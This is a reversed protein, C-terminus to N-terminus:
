GSAPEPDREPVEGCVVDASDAEPLGVAVAYEGDLLATLGLTVTTESSAGRLPELESVVKGPDDCTGSRLWVPNAGGGAPEGEDLGDVVITTRDRSEYVLTARVGAVEASGRSPLDFAIEGPDDTTGSEDWGGCGACAVLASAAVLLLRRGLTV